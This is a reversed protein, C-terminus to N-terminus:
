RAATNPPNQCLVELGWARVARRTAEAHRDHRAFVNELGEEQSCRRASRALGLAPQDGPHLSLLGDTNATLM